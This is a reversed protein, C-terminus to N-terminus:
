YKLCSIENYVMYCVIKKEQDCLRTIFTGPATYIKKTTCEIEQAKIQKPSMLVLAISGVITISILIALIINMAEHSIEKNM